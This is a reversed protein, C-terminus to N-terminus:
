SAETLARSWPTAMNPRFKGHELFVGLRELFDLLAKAHKPRHQDRDPTEFRTDTFRLIPYAVKHTRAALRLLAYAIVAAYIQLKIANENHGLFKRFELHQKIWRFLLEIQWRGKYLAAIEVASRTMDNTILRLTKGNDRRVRIRRLPIPQAM